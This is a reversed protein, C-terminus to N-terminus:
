CGFAGGEQGSHDPHRARVGSLEFGAGVVWVDACKEFPGEFVEGSFQFPAVWGVRLFEAVLGIEESGHRRLLFPVTSRVDGPPPGLPGNALISAKRQVIARPQGPLIGTKWSEDAEAILIASRSNAPRSSRTTYGATRLPASPSTHLLAWPNLYSTISLKSPALSTLAACVFLGASCTIDVYTPM